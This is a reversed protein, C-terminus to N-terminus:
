TGWWFPQRPRTLGSGPPSDITPGDRRVEHDLRDLLDLLDLLDVTRVANVLLAREHEDLEYRDVVGDWLRRGPPAPWRPPRTDSM